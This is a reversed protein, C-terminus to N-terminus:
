SMGLEIGKEVGYWKLVFFAGLPSYINDWGHRAVAELVTTFLVLVLSIGLIQVFGLPSLIYLPLSTSIFAVLFFALSGEMTKTQGAITYPLNGDRIGVIAAASDALSLIFIPVSFLIFNGSSLTFLICISLVFLIDGQSKREVGYLIGYLNSSKFLRRITVLFATLLGGLIWVPLPKHFWWPLVLSFLGGLMHTSKRLVEPHTSHFRKWQVLGFFLGMLLLLFGMIGFLPHMM